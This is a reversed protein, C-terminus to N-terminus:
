FVLYHSEFCMIKQAELYKKSVTFFTEVHAVSNNTGHSNTNFKASAGDHTYIPCKNFSFHPCKGKFRRLKDEDLTGNVSVITCIGFKACVWLSRIVPYYLNLFQTRM